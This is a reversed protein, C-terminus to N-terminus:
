LKSTDWVVGSATPKLRGIMPIHTATLLANEALAADVLRQRSSGTADVNAWYPMWEPHEIEVPHHYLDGLGYFTQGETSLRVIQHGPTEGPSAMIQIEPTLNRNGSIPEVLGKRHLIGFTRGELSATDDLGKQMDASEWDALGIYHRANRFIPQYGGDRKETVGSFHDFHGHTIVVHAIEDPKVGRKALQALLGPPPQYGAIAFPSDPTFDYLSADLLLNTQPTQFLVCQIPIRFPQSFIASTGPPWDKEALGYAEALDLQIDGVHILTIATNGLHITRTSESM